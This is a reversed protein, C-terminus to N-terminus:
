IADAPDHLRKCDGDRGGSGEGARDDNTREAGVLARLAAISCSAEDLVKDYTGAGKFASFPDPGPATCEVITPGRFGSHHLSTFLGDFPVHGHGVGQRNSDAVHFLFLREGATTVAREPNAEEINMHYTDLVIGVAESGIQEVLSRAQHATNVLHSEYRNLVEVAVRIRLREAEVVLQCLADRLLHEEEAQTSLARVRGVRGHFSVTEAGLESAYEMLKRYYDLAESRTAIEPHAPDVDGPTLSYVSLGSSRLIRRAEPAPYRDWDGFLEVGGYGLRAIDDALRELLVDGFVWSCIGLQM